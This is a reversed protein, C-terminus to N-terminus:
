QVVLSSVFARGLVDNDLDVKWAKGEKVMLLDVRRDNSGVKTLVRVIARNKGKLVTSADDVDGAFDFGKGVNGCLKADLDVGRAIDRMTAMTGSSLAGKVAGCDKTSLSRVFRIGVKEAETRKSGSNVAILIGLVVALLVAVVIGILLVPRRRRPVELPSTTPQDDEAM